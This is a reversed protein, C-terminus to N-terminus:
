PSPSPTLFGGSIPKLHLSFSTAAGLWPGPKTLSGDVGILFQCVKIFVARLGFRPCPSSPGYAPPWERFQSPPFPLLPATADESFIDLSSPSRAAAMAQARFAVRLPSSPMRFAAEQERERDPSLSEELRSLLRQAVPVSWELALTVSTFLVLTGAAPPTDSPPEVGALSHRGREDVFVVKVDADLSAVHIRVARELPVGALVLRTGVRRCDAVLSFITHLGTYDLGLCYTTDLVLISPRCTDLVDQACLLLKAANSFVLPYQLEVVAIATRFRGDDACRLGDVMSGVSVEEEGDVNVSTTASVHAMRRCLTRLVPTESYPMTLALFWSVFVGSLLGPVIDVFLTVLFVIVFVFTDRRQVRWFRVINKLEVLQVIAILVVAALVLKPLYKLVPGLAYLAILLVVAAFLSSISSKAGSSANVATRSFSGTVPFGYLVSSFLNVIGLAILEQSPDIFHGGNKRAVTSAITMSEMYGVLALTIASAFLTLQTGSDLGSLPNEFGLLGRPIEGLISVGHKRLGGHTGYGYVVGCFMVMLLLPGVNGVVSWQKPRWRKLFQLSQLVALCLASCLVTWWNIHKRNDVINQIEQYFLCSEGEAAHCKEVGFLSNLQTSAILLAAASTFGAIVPESVFNMFVGVRLIGMLLQLIGVFAALAFTCKLYLESMEEVPVGGNATHPVANHILISMVATPGSILHPSTGFIFYPLLTVFATYLGFQAPVGSVLAYSMAQPIAMIGVTVGAIADQTLLKRANYSPLWRLVPFYHPLWHRLGVDEMTRAGPPLAAPSRPAAAM